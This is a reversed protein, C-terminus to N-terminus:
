MGLSLVPGASRLQRFSCAGRQIDTGLSSCMCLVPSWAFLRSRSTTCTNTRGPWMRHGVGAQGHGFHWLMSGHMPPRFMHPAAPQNQCQEGGSFTHDQVPCDEPIICSPAMECATVGSAQRNASGVRRAFVKAALSGPSHLGATCPAKTSHPCVGRQATAKAGRWCRLWRTTCGHVIM